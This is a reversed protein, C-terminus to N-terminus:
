MPQHYCYYLSNVEPDFQKEHFIALARTIIKDRLEYREAKAGCHSLMQLSDTKM